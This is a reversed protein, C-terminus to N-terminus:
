WLAARNRAVRSYHHTVVPSSPASRLLVRIGAYQLSVSPSVGWTRTGTAGPTPWMEYAISATRGTNPTHAALETDTVPPVAVRSSSNIGMLTLAMADATTTTVSPFVYSTGSNAAITSAAVDLPTTPDMGAVRVMFLTARDNPVTLTLSAGESGDVARYFLGVAPAISTANAKAFTTYGAVDAFPTTATVVVGLVLHEGLGAGAPISIALSTGTVQEAETPTGAISITM